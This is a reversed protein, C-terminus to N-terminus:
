VRNRSPHTEQGCAEYMKVNKGFARIQMVQFVAKLFGYFSFINAGRAEIAAEYRSRWPFSGCWLVVGNEFTVDFTILVHMVREITAQTFGFGTENLNQLISYRSIVRVQGTRDRSMVYHLTREIILLTSTVVSSVVSAAVCEYVGHDEKGLNFV